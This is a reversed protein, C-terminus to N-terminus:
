RPRGDRLRPGLGVADMLGALPISAAVQHGIYRPDHLNHGHELMTRVLEAFHEALAERDAPLGLATDLCSAAEQVNEAPERWPLVKGASAQIKRSHDALLDVLRHGSLRLLDPDYAMEIRRRAARMEEMSLM